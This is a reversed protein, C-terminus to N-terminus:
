MCATVLPTYKKQIKIGGDQIYGYMGHIKLTVENIIVSDVSKLQVIFFLLELTFMYCLFYQSITTSPFNKKNCFHLKCNKVHM